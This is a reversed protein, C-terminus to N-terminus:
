SKSPGNLVDSAYEPYLAKACEPCIGHSFKADAHDRLYSEIQNWYGKDDRIKKCSSCIPLMGSLTKVESLAQTLEAILQEREATAKREATIDHFVVVGGCIQGSADKLPRGISLHRREPFSPSRVLVEAGDVNEGRAARALPLDQAPYPASGDPLFLGYRASWDRAAVDAAGLGLIQEAVPNFLVFRGEGDAVIVAEGMSNLISQLISKERAVMEEAVARRAEARSLREASWFVIAGLLAVIAVAFLASGLDQDFLGRNVGLVRLWGLVLPVLLVAPLLRRAISGAFSDTVLRAALGEEPRLALIGSCVALFGISTNLAVSGFGGPISIESVRYVYAFLVLLSDLTVLVVVLDRARRGRARGLFILALALAVFNVATLPAMRGIPAVHDAGPFLLNDISFPIRTTYELITLLGAVGAALACASAVMAAARGRLSRALIAIGCLAFVLATIPKMPPFGPAVNQMSAVDFSWGALVFIGLGVALAGCLRATKRLPVVRPQEPSAM